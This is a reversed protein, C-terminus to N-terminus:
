CPWSWQLIMKNCRAFLPGAAKGGGFKAAFTTTARPMMQWKKLHQLLQYRRYGAFLEDGGDGQLVVKINQAIEKGHFLPVNAADAFPDDHAWAM